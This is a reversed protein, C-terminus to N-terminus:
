AGAEAAFMDLIQQETHEEPAKWTIKIKRGVTKQAGKCLM